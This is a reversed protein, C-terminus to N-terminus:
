GYYTVVGGSSKYALKNGDTSFYLTDNAAASDALHLPRFGGKITGDGSSGNTVKVVGASLRALGTDKTDWGYASSSWAIATSSGLGVAADTAYIANSGTGLVAGLVMPAQFGFDCELRGDTNLNLTALGYGAFGTGGISLAGVANVKARVATTVDQWETLPATQSTVGRFIGARYSAGSAVLALENTGNATNARVTAESVGYCGIEIGGTNGVLNLSTGGASRIMFGSTLIMGNTTVTGTPGVSFVETGTSTQGSILPATQSTTGKVTLGADAANQVAVVFRADLQVTRTGSRYMKGDSSVGMAIGGEGSPGVYGIECHSSTNYWAAITQQSLVKGVNTVQALLAGTVDECRILPGTQSTTGKATLVTSSAQTATALVGGGTNRALTTDTTEAATTASWDLVGGSGLRVGFYSARVYNTGSYNVRFESGSGALDVLVVSGAPTTIATGSALTVTGTFTPSALPAAGAVQGVTLGTLGAGGGVFGTATVTGTVTQNGLFTNAQDLRAYPTLDPPPLETAVFAVVEGLTVRRGGLVPDSSPATPDVCFLLTADALASVPGLEALTFGTVPM